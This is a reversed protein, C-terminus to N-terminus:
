YGVASQRDDQDAVLCNVTEALNDIVLSAFRAVTADPMSLTHNEIRAAFQKWLLTVADPGDAEHVLTEWVHFADVEPNGSALAAMYLDAALDIQAAISEDRVCADLLKAVFCFGSPTTDSAAAALFRQAYYGMEEIEGPKGIYYIGTLFEYAQQPSLTRLYALEASFDPSDTSNTKTM